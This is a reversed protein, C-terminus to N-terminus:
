RGGAQQKSQGEPENKAKASVSGGIDMTFNNGIGSSRMTVNRAGVANLTQSNGVGGQIQTVSSDMANTTQKNGVGDQTQSVSSGVANITQTNSRGYQTQEAVSGTARITQVNGSSDIQVRLANADKADVSQGTGNECGAFVLVALAILASKM